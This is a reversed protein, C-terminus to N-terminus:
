SSAEEQPLPHRRGADFAWRAIAVAVDAWREVIREDVRLVLRWVDPDVSQRLLEQHDVIVYLRERAEPDAAVLGDVAAALAEDDEVTTPDLQPRSESDLPWPADPPQSV